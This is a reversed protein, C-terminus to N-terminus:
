ELDKKNKEAMKFLEHELYSKNEDLVWYKLDSIKNYFNEDYRRQKLKELMSDFENKNTTIFTNQEWVGEEPTTYRIVYIKNM